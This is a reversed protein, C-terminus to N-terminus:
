FTVARLGDCSVFAGWAVRLFSCVRKTDLLVHGKYRQCSKGWGEKSSYSQPFPPSVVQRNQTDPRTLHCHKQLGFQRAWVQFPLAIVALDHHRDAIATYEIPHKRLKRLGTCPKVSQSITELKTPHLPSLNNKCTIYIHHESFTQQIHIRKHPQM